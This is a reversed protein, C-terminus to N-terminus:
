FYGKIMELLPRRQLGCFAFLAFFGLSSENM